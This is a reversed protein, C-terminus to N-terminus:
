LINYFYEGFLGFIDGCNNWRTKPIRFVVYGRSKLVNEFEKEAITGKEKNSLKKM